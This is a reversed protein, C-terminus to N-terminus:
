VPHVYQARYSFLVCSGSIGRHVSMIDGSISFLGRHVSCVKYLTNINHETVSCFVVEQYGGIYEHYGRSTSM